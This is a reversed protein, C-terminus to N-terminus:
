RPLNPRGSSGSHVHFWFFGGQYCATIISKGARRMFFYLILLCGGVGGGGCIRASGLTMRPPGLSAAPKLRAGERRLVQSLAKLYYCVRVEWGQVM